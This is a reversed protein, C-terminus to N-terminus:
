PGIVNDDLNDIRYGCAIPYEANQHESFNHTLLAHMLHHGATFEQAIVSLIVPRIFSLGESKM